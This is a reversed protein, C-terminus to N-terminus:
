KKVFTKIDGKRKKIELEIQKIDCDDVIDHYGGMETEPEPEFSM